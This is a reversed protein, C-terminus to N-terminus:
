MLQALSLLALHANVPFIIIAKCLQFPQGPDKLSYGQPHIREGPGATFSLLQFITCGSLVHNGQLITVIIKKGRANSSDLDFLPFRVDLVEWVL